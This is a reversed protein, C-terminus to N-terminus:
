SLEPTPFQPNTKFLHRLGRSDKLRIVKGFDALRLNTTSYCYSPERINLELNNKWLFHLADTIPHCLFPCLCVLGQGEEEDKTCM